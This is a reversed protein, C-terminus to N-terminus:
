HNKGDKEYTLQIKYKKKIKKGEELKQPLSIKKLVYNDNWSEKPKRKFCKKKEELNEKNNDTLNEGKIEKKIKISNEEFTPNTKISFM